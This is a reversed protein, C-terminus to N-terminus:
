RLRYRQIYELDDADRRVLYVAGDRGFGLLRTREPIVVRGTLQGRAGIIDFTPNKETHPLQKLIWLEGNPAVAVGNGQYPHKYEPWSPPETFTAPATSVSTATGPGTSRVQIGTPPSARQQERYAQKESETVRVREFPIPQGATRQGNSAVWTVQYPEPSVIAIRGDPAVAWAHTTVFPVNGGIRVMVRTNRGGPGNSNTIEPRPMRIHAVTDTEGSRPDLRTIPASDSPASGNSGPAFNVGQTYIRGMADVNGSRGGISFVAGGGASLSQIPVDGAITGNPAVKIYKRGMDSVFTTDGPMAMVAGPLTYEGPGTGETGIKTSTRRSLDVLAIQKETVDAVILRGDSLERVGVLRSFPEALEVEPRTLTRTPPTGSQALVPVFGLALMSLAAAACRLVKLM